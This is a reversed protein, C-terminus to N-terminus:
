NDKLVFDDYETEFRLKHQAEEQSLALMLDRIAPDETAAALDGYLNQASQERKMALTLIQQYDLDPSPEIDVLYDSIKLDPIKASSPTLSGASRVKELKTKHGQEMAAFEQFVSKMATRDTKEALDAYFEIAEQEKDIAFGLLDDVSEWAGESM